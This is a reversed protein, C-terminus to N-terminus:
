RVYLGVVAHKPELEKWSRFIEAIRDAGSELLRVLFAKPGLAGEQSPLRLQGVVDEFSAKFYWATSRALGQLGAWQTRGALM